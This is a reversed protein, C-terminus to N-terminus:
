SARTAVILQAAGFLLSRHMVHDFGARRVIAVLERPPPLYATSAPLYAYAARDSLLGGIFPVLKRFYLGHAARMVRSKPEGVDLLVVPAGPKVVRACESLFPELATFNRLGFGCTIADARASAVPLKLVDSRILPVNTHNAALMGASFDFGYTTYGARDLDRCFDGTGCALDLVVANPAISLERLAARRWRIDMRLTIVRNLRDYRAAIRDFMAEVTAAKDAETPLAAVPDRM